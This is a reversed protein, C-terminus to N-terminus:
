SNQQANWKGYSEDLHTPSAIGLPGDAGSLQPENPADAKLVPTLAGVSDLHFCHASLWGKVAEINKENRAMVPPEVELDLFGTQGVVAPPTKANRRGEQIRRSVGKAAVIPM